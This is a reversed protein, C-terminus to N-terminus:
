TLDFDEVIVIVLVIRISDYKVVPSITGNHYTGYFQSSKKALM